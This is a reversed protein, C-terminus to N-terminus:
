ATQYSESTDAKERVGPKGVKERGGGRKFGWSNDLRPSGVGMMASICKLRDSRWAKGISAPEM